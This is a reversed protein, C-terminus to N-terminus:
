SHRGDLRALAALVAQGRPSLRYGRELSETLGLAKLKRVDLKFSPTDRGVSAALDGARTAPQAEILRLTEATWPERVSARDLRALRTVITAVEDGAPVTERLAIRPDAGAFSFAVRWVDEPGAGLHAVLADRSAFGARRAERATISAVPVVDVATVHLMGAPSRYDGGAKVQARSWRRFTLTISGDALGDWAWKSFLVM